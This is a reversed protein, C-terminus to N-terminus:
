KTMSRLFSQKRRDGEPPQQHAGRKWIHACIRGEAEVSDTSYMAPRGTPIKQSEERRSGRLSELGSPAAQPRGIRPGFHDRRMVVEEIWLPQDRPSLRLVHFRNLTARRNSTANGRTATNDVQQEVSTGDVTSKLRPTPQAPPLVIIELLQKITHVVQNTEEAMGELQAQRSAVQALNIETHKTVKQKEPSEPPNSAQTQNQSESPQNQTLNQSCTRRSIIAPTQPQCLTPLIARNHGSSARGRAGFQQCTIKVTLLM